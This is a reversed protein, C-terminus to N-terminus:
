EDTDTNDLLWRKQEGIGLGLMPVLCAHGTRRLTPILYERYRRGCLLVFRSPTPYCRCLTRAVRDAWARREEAAMATLTAEYPAIVTHPDIAGHRASLILWRGRRQAFRRAKVFWDSTYLDQAPAAHSLKQKGCAVLIIETM